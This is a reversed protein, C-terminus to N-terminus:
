PRAVLVKRTVIDAMLEDDSARRLRVHTRVTDAEATYGCLEATLADDLPLNAYYFVDRRVPSLALAWDRETSLGLRRVLQREASEAITVYSAFYLLGAGNYDAYPSPEYRLQALPAGAAALAPGSFNDDLPGGRRAAKALRAILPDTVPPVWRAALAPAPLTMRLVGPREPVAFTTLLELECRLEPDHAARVTVRGHACARGCPVVDTEAALVDNERVAALSPTYRARVAVFTPYLREGAAGRLEESSVALRRGIAEWHLEGAWRYLWNEALGGADLHPMGVRVRRPTAPAEPLATIPRPVVTLTRPSM